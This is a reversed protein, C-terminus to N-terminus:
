KRMGLGGRGDGDRPEPRQPRTEGRAGTCEKLQAVFLDLVGGGGCRGIEVRGAGAGETPVRAGGGDGRAYSMFDGNTRGGIGGDGIKRDGTPAM